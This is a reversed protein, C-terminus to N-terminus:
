SVEDVRETLETIIEKRKKLERALKILSKERAAKRRQEKTLARDANKLNFYLRELLTVLQNHSMEDVDLLDVRSPISVDDDYGNAKSSNDQSPPGIFFKEPTENAHHVANDFSKSFVIEEEVNRGFCSSRTDVSTNITPDTLGPSHKLSFPSDITPISITEPPRPESFDLARKIEELAEEEYRTSPIDGYSEM